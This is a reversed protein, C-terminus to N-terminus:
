KVWQKRKGSDLHVFGARPYYGVGGYGMTNRAYLVHSCVQRVPIGPVFFDIARGYQHLSNRAVSENKLSLRANYSPSRYGSNIQILPVELLASFYNLSEITRVDMYQWTGDKCRLFWNLSNLVQQDYNGKTDRFNFEYEGGHISSKLRLKGPCYVAVKEANVPIGETPLVDEELSEGWWSEVWDSAQALASHPFMVGSSASALLAGATIKLFERRQM